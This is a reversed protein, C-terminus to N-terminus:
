QSTELNKKYEVQYRDFCINVPDNRPDTSNTRTQTSSTRM